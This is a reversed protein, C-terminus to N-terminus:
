APVTLPEDLAKRGVRVAVISATAGGISRAEFRRKAEEADRRHLYTGVLRYHNGDVEVAWAEVLGATKKM